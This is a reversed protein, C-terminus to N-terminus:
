GFIYIQYGRYGYLDSPDVAIDDKYSILLIDDCIFHNNNGPLYMLSKVKNTRIYGCCKKYRAPVFYSPLDDKTVKVLISAGSYLYGKPNSVYIYKRKKYIIKEIAYFNARISPKRKRRKAM